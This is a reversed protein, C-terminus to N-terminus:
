FDTEHMFLPKHALTAELYGRNYLYNEYMTSYSGVLNFGWEKDFYGAGYLELINYGLVFPIAKPHALEILFKDKIPSAIYYALYVPKGDKICKFSAVSLLDSENKIKDLAENLSKYSGIFSNEPISLYSINAMGMSDVILDFKSKDFDSKKFILYERVGIGYNPIVYKNSGKIYDFARDNSLNYFSYMHCNFECIFNSDLLYKKRLGEIFEIDKSSLNGRKGVDELTEQVVQGNKELLFWLLLTADKNKFNKHRFNYFDSWSVNCILTDDNSKFYDLITKELALRHKEYKQFTEDMEEPTNLIAKLDHTSNFGLVKSLLESAQSLSLSNSLGLEKNAVKQFRKAYNNVNRSNIDISM